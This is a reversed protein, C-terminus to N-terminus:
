PSLFRKVGNLLLDILQDKRSQPKASDMASATINVTATTTACTGRTSCIRATVEYVGASLSAKSDALSGWAEAASVQFSSTRVANATNVGPGTLCVSFTGVDLPDTIEGQAFRFVVVPRDQPISGGQQANTAPQVMAIVPARYSSIGAPMTPSQGPPVPPTNVPQQAALPISAAVILLTGLITARPRVRGSTLISIPCPVLAERNALPARRRGM